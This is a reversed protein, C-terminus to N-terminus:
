KVVTLTVSLRVVHGNLPDTALFSDATQGDKLALNFDARFQRIAPNVVSASTDDRPAEARKEEKPTPEPLITSRDVTLMLKYRGDDMTTAGCDINTGVDVYQFQTNVLPSITPGNNGTQFSGTAVPVRVGSRVKTNPRMGPQEDADVLFVYPLSSVKKEGDYETFVIQIKLPTASRIKESPATTGSSKASQQASVRGAAIVFVMILASGALVAVRFGRM